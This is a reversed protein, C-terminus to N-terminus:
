VQGASKEHSMCYAAITNLFDAGYKELKHQGVGTIDLLGAEDVPKDRAMQILTADGFVIYPPVRQADALQKRLGRLEDFLIEDYSGERADVRPRKKPKSQQRIRPRALELTHEGRLLPRAAETLKLVSYSAIDQILFGHHIL